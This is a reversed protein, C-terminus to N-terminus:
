LLQLGLYWWTDKFTQQLFSFLGICPTCVFANVSVCQLHKAGHREYRHDAVGISLSELNRDHNLNFLGIVSVKQIQQDIVTLFQVLQEQM